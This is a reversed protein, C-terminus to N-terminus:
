PTAQAATTTTTPASATAIGGAILDLQHRMATAVVADDGPAALAAALVVVVRGSRGFGYLVARGRGDLPGTRVGSAETTGPIAFASSTLTRTGRSTEDVYRQAGGGTSMQYLRVTMLEDPASRQWSRVFANQLGAREFAAKAGVPDDRETVLRDIDAAGGVKLKDDPIQSFGPPAPM